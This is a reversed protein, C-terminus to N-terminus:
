RQAKMWEEHEEDEKAWKEKNEECCKECNSGEDLDDMNDQYEGCHACTDWYTPSMDRHPNIFFMVVNNFRKWDNPFKLETMKQECEDVTADPLCDFLVCTERVTPNNFVTDCNRPM